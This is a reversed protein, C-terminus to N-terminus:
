QGSPLVGRGPGGNAPKREAASPAALLAARVENPNTAALVDERIAENALTRSADALLELQAQDDGEGTLLLVIIRAPKGDLADFDVGDDSLGLAVVPAKLNVLRAHPVAIGFELGTPMLQERKLVADRVQGPDLGHSAATAATLITIAEISTRAELRLVIARPNLHDAIRRPQRIRLLWKLLPGASASTVLAMVVLAVFLRESIIDLKLALLGLIIEMAGRSNLAIGIAIAQRWGHGALRAGLGGGLLKGFTAVGTVVLVLILDFHAVLNVRLGITAFFLPAFVFSVFEELTTRTGHRLHRSDGLAVGFLFSGFVAHIGIWETTAAALLGATATFGLVGGPWSTFAHLWPLVRHLLWRGVTLMAVTFVVALTLTVSIPLSHDSRGMMGLVLAFCMWGILDQAIAAPVVVMGLDSRLIDLDKLTKVIVPLASISLATAVFLVFVSPDIGDVAGLWSGGVHGLGAGLAFPLLLGSSCVLLAVRGQRWVSSLDVETGAVLLYLVLAVNSFGNLVTTIAGSPPFLQVQLQPAIAGFVSPGLLVGATLEGLVAPQKLHRALEGLARAAGLLIGLALLIGLVDRSGLFDM